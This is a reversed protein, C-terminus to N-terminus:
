YNLGEYGRKEHVRMLFIGARSFEIGKILLPLLLAQRDLGATSNVM